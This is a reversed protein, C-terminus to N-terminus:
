ATAHGVDSVAETCIVTLDHDGSAAIMTRTVRAIVICGHSANGKKSDGHIFFGSRGLADHSVPTLPMVRPGLGPADYAPGIHYFGRPIPGVSRVAEMVPNNIGQDHGSYGSGIVAGDHKMTGTRQDYTFM